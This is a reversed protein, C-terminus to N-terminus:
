LGIAGENTEEEQRRRLRKRPKIKEETNKGKKTNRKENSYVFGLTPM